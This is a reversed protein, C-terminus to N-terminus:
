KQKNQNKGLDRESLTDESMNKQEKLFLCSFGFDLGRRVACGQALFSLATTIATLLSSEVPGQSCLCHIVVLEERGQEGFHGYVKIQWCLLALSPFPM